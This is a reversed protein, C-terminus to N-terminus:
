KSNRKKENRVTLLRAISRKAKRIENSSKASKPALSMRGEMVFKRLEIESEKLRAADLSRLESAVMVVNEM